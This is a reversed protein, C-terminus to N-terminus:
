SATQSVFTFCVPSWKLNRSSFLNSLPHFEPVDTAGLFLFRIM